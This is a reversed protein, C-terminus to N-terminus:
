SCKEALFRNWARATPYIPCRRLILHFIRMTLVLGLCRTRLLLVVAGRTAEKPLTVSIVLPPLPLPASLPTEPDASRSSFTSPQLRAIHHRYM